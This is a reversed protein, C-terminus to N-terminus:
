AVAQRGAGMQECASEAAIVGLVAAKVLGGVYGAFEGGELGGTCSGAAYLGPLPRDDKGLVRAKGDVAIGGMTYTIGACVRIAHFPGVSITSPEPIQAPAGKSKAPPVAAVNHEAVAAELNEASLGLKEALEPLTAASTLNGGAQVVNPNPPVIHEAGITNWIADDFVVFVNTPDPLAAIRNAIYIGGRREEVFRNGAGDVVVSATAMRDIQPYPWLRDSNLAEACQVHGYFRDLDVLKAGARAAMLLGDGRGTGAGRTCLAEPKATIYQRVLDPNGQFGGDAVIVAAARMDETRGDIEVAVGQCIGDTFLLTRARAGTLIRGGRARFADALRRLNADGGRGQWNLGARLLAPPAMVRNMWDFMGGNVFRAGSGVMWDLARKANGAVAEVLDGRANPGVSAKIRALLAEPAEDVPRFSVHMVGMAFRSNCLYHEGSGAELLVTDLGLEAARGAASLGAFGGGVVIVQNM